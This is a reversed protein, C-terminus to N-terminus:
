NSLKGIIGWIVLAVFIVVCWWLLGSLGLYGAVAMAIVIGVIIPICIIFIVAVILAIAGLGQLWEKLAM